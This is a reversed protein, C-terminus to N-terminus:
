DMRIIKRVLRAQDFLLVVTYQGAKPLVEATDYQYTHLGASQNAKILTRVKKGNADYIVVKVSSQKPLSYSVTFKDQVPNPFLNAEYEWVEASVDVGTVPDPESGTKTVTWEIVYVHGPSHTTSRSLQTTDTVAVSIKTQAKTFSSVPVSVSEQNISFTEGDRQWTVNMTNPSPELYSVSFELPQEALPLTSTKPEYGLLPNVLDHVREVFAETCVSCFANGLFRMKCNQHPRFWSPAEAHAYVGVEGGVWAAWKVSSPNSTQTMNAKEAAYSAGAWYEDALGPFSHGIEHISVEHADAHTSSTAYTGGSGGYYPSNVVVFVQDYLPFNDSLVNAVNGTKTPVLLRHIGGFDFTSGFYTSVQQQPVPACDLDQSTRPHIAGSADSPVKIAFVNFYNKYQQFPTQSFMTEVLDNVDSIYNTMEGAQYGDSLFVLNILQEVDGNKLLTDVPFTQANAGFQFVVFCWLLRFRNM